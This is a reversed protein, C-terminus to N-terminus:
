NENWHKEINKLENKTKNKTKNKLVGFYKILALIVAMSKEKKDM